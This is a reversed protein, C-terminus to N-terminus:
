GSCKSYVNLIRILEYANQPSARSFLLADDAFFLHTLTPAGRALQFGQLRGDLVAKNILHSLADVALIFLYPSIPDGQRLGRQPSISSSIHGNVKYSYSVSSVLKLVRSVWRPAFGYALM